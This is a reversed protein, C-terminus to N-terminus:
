VIKAGFDFAGQPALRAVTVTMRQIVWYGRPIQERKYLLRLDSSRQVMSLAVNMLTPPFFPYPLGIVATILTQGRAEQATTALLM